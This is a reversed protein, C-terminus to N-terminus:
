AFDGWIDAIEDPIEHEVRPEPPTPPASSASSEEIKSKIAKMIQPVLSARGSTFAKLVFKSFPTKHDGGLQAVATKLIEKEVEGDPMLKTLKSLPLAIEIIENENAGEVQSTYEGSKGIKSRWTKSNKLAAEAIESATGICYRVATSAIEERNRSLKGYMMTAYIQDLSSSGPRECFAVFHGWYKAGAPTSAHAVGGTITIKIKENTM